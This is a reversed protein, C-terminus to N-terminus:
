CLEKKLDKEFSNLNDLAIKLSKKGQEQLAAPENIWKKVLELANKTSVKTASIIYPYKINSYLTEFKYTYSFPITTVGSSIAAITSHMRSGLFINMNSIYSKAKICTEFAPALVVKDGYINKIQQCIRYDNEGSEPHKIDIVHPIIHIEYDTENVLYDLLSIYFKKYDVTLKFRKRTRDDWLLSSVNIGIRKVDDTMPYMLKDYPLGFALDSTVKVFDGIQRATQEDRSYALNAKRIMNISWKKFPFRYSGYTQPLLFLPKKAWYVIQKRLAQVFNRRTGYIGTFGDGYSADFICDCTKIENYVDIWSKVSYINLIFGKFSIKPFYRQIEGLEDTRMFCVVELKDKEYIRQLLNMFTYTLAECGKNPDTFTLGLLGIKMDM